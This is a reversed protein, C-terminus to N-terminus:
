PDNSASRRTMTGWRSKPPVKRRKRQQGSNVDERVSTFAHQFHRGCRCPGVPSSHVVSEERPTAARPTRRACNQRAPAVRLGARRRVGHPEVNLFCQRCDCVSGGGWVVRRLPAVTRDAGKAVVHLDNTLITDALGIDIRGASGARSCVSSMPQRRCGVWSRATPAFTAFRGGAIRYGRSVSTRPRSKCAASPQGPPHAGSTM